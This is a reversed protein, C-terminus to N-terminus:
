ARVYNNENLTKHTDDKHNLWATIALMKGNGLPKLVVSMDHTRSYRQRIVIKAPKNGELGLEFIEEPNVQITNPISFGGYRDDQEAKRSHTTKRILFSGSPLIAFPWYVDRHYLKM